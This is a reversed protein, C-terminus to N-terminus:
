RDANEKNEKIIGTSWIRVIGRGIITNTFFLIIGILLKVSATVIDRVEEAVFDPGMDTGVPFYSAYYSHYSLLGLFNPISSIILWVGFVKIILKYLDSSSVNIILQTYEQEGVLLRVIRSTKWWGFYILLVAVILLIFNGILYAWSYENDMRYLYLFNGINNIFPSILYLVLFLVVMKIITKMVPQM